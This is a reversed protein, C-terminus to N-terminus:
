IKIARIIERKHPPGPHKEVWFGAAKMNKQVVSKSCYTTLIGDKEMMQNIMSFVKITWLEPQSQPAFADFYVLNFKENCNFEELPSCVKKFFFHDNIQHWTKWSLQNLFRLEKPLLEFINSPLPYAEIGFYKTNKKFSNAQSATLFANLGTGFGLEFIRIEEFTKAAFDYGLEIYVKESETKAGYISHYNQNFKESFITFSGDSTAKIKM